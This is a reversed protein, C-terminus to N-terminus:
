YAVESPGLCGFFEVVPAGPLRKLYFNQNVVGADVVIAVKKIVASPVVTGYHKQM